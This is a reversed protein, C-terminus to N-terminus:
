ASSQRAGRSELDLRDQGRALHVVLLTVRRWPCRRSDYGRDTAGCRTDCAGVDVAVRSAGAPSPCEGGVAGDEGLGNHSHCTVLKIHHVKM